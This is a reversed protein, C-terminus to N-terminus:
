RHEGSRAALSLAAARALRHCRREDEPAIGTMRICHLHLLAPLVTEPGTEGMTILTDRYRALTARRGVWAAM